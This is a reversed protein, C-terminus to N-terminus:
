KPDEKLVLKVKDASVVAAYFDVLANYSEKPWTGRNMRLERIYTVKDDKVTISTKYEGFVSTFNKGAPIAETKYGNPLSIIITDNDTYAYENYVPMRRNDVRAPASKNQNFINLPIFLRSGTKTAFSPAQLSITEEAVPLKERISRYNLNTIALGTISLREYLKKEQEKKPENLVSSINDYQYGSYKTRVTAEMSGISHIQVEAMCNQSNQGASFLPTQAVKGGDKNIILVRKGATFLSLYGCPSTQSTCELWLTDRHLPVCLIVHNSQGNTPFDNMTIGQNSAAGALTYESTIGVVKLLAGMYNSLAKCDGYGLRDVTEAPFPQFGGIGLQIGVYRTRSQMYEYLKRVIKVTDKLDRVMERIENQREVPLLDRGENLKNFWLGFEKWSNMSGAYGGYEFKIPATIVGPTETYLKPSMPEENWAAVSDVKFEISKIGNGHKEIRCNKPLNFERYRIEMNDPYSISFSSKEVSLWYGSVPRWEPYSILGSYEIEYNYEVTYPYSNFQFNARKYRLDDYLAGSSTYNIDEIAKNKLKEDAMGMADYLKGSISSIKTSKDYPLMLVAFEDGRKELITVVYHIRETAKGEDLLKFDQSFERCVAWANSKMRSDISSAQYKLQPKEKAQLFVLSALFLFVVALLRNTM